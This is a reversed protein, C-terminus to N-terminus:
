LKYGSLRTMLETARQAAEKRSTESVRLTNPEFRTLKTMEDAFSNLAPDDTLNLKPVLTALEQINGIMSDFIRPEAKKLTDAMHQVPKIMRSLLERQAEKTADEVRINVSDADLGILTKVNNEFHTSDPVPLPETKLYFKDKMAERFKQVDLVWNGSEDKHCGPYLDPDFTGNQNKVAWDLWKQPDAFFGSEILAEREGKFQRMRDGYEMILVAPLIGIGKDFPLTVGDHFKAVRADLQKIAKLAEPPYLMKVWKGSRDGLNHEKKVQETVENDQRAEGPLGISLRMLVARKALTNMQKRDKRKVAGSTM